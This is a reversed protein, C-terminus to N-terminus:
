PPQYRPPPPHPLPPCRSHVRTTKRIVKPNLASTVFRGSNNAQPNSAVWAASRTTEWMWWGISLLTIWYFICSIGYGSVFRRYAPENLVDFRDLVAM